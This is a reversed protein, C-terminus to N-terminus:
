VLPPARARFLRYPLAAAATDAHPFVRVSHTVVLAPLEPAAAPVTSGALHTVACIACFDFVLGAPNVPAAPTDPMAASPAHDALTFQPSGGFPWAIEIRHAHGFSL